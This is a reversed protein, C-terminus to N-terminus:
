KKEGQKKPWDHEGCMMGTFGKWTHKGWKPLNNGKARHTGCRHCYQMIGNGMYTPLSHIPGKENQHPLDQSHRLAPASPPLFLSM